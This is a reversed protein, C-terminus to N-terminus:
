AADVSKRRGKSSEQLYIESSTSCKTNIGKASPGQWLRWSLQLELQKTFEKLAESSDQTKPQWSKGAPEQLKRGGSRNRLNDAKVLQLQQLLSLNM